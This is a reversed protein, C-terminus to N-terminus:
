RVCRHFTFNGETYNRRVIPRLRSDKRANAQTKTETQIEDDSDSESSDENGSEM